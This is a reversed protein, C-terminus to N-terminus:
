MYNVSASAKVTVHSHIKKEEEGGRKRERSTEDSQANSQKAVREPM